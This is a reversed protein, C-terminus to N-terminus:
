GFKEPKILAFFLYILLFFAIIGVITYLMTMEGDPQEPRTHDRREHRILRGPILYRILRAHCSWKTQTETGNIVM